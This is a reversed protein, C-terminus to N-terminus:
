NIRLMASYLFVLDKSQINTLPIFSNNKESLLMFNFLKQFNEDKVTESEILLSNLLKAESFKNELTLCFIDSKQLLNKPLSISKELLSLRLNCVESLKYSSYLYNLKILYFFELNQKDIIASELNIKSVLDYAKEIEGIEYLKKIVFYIKDGYINEDEVDIDSLINIFERHLTKSNINRLTDLHGSILSSDLDFFTENELYVIQEDANEKNANQDDLNDLNSDDEIINGEEVIKKEDEFNILNNENNENNETELVLQDLSKNKHLEIIQVDNAKSPFTFLIFIVLFLKFHNM